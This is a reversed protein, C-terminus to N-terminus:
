PKEEASFWNDKEVTEYDSETSSDASNDRNLFCADLERLLQERKKKDTVDSAPIELVKYGLKEYTSNKLITSGNRLKKEKDIYHQAGQVEVVVKERPFLLDVPPLGNVSAEMELTHRPFNKRLIAHLKRHPYSVITKYNPLPLDRLNEKLWIGSLRMISVRISSSNEKEAMLADYLGKMLPLLLSTEGGRTLFVTLAWLTMEQGRWLEITNIDMTGLINLVENLSVGDGLAALAWLLNSIEQPNFPGPPTVVQPLLATVAQRVLGGQDLQLLGNEVLKALSWLLNSIEQPNFPGPPTVVKPLLATVVQNALSGQDLQLLGNEVLKVLAWLLNTVHQSTFDDRHSQVQPLLATVARNALGGQDQQLLGNEVLKALSWLLNSITQPNFPEAPSVVQPLLAMMAQRALGGQDLQLLGNEVLKALSWLLSSVNQSTVDYRYSQVQPLLVTVVQSALGGQYQQHLGNEMLKALAWLLNSVGQSTFDGQHNQVQSLLATVAQSALRGQDLQLLGNEVLKALSWLLNSVHQSIFDDRHSQVQPLLATVAQSALDAQDPRPLGNEVLKALSWLLNSIEQPNFPGPPTVVQPLLEALARSALFGQDQQLRGNKVLKALSWLLNSIEQPNFPGPPNMVQLLLATAAQSVLGGQDMQLLRNEVLKALSWLLNSIEQPTFPEPPTVVQLLLATAAQSALSGQDMQLLRNEVLKALSWLLNSISQVGFGCHAREQQLTARFEVARALQEILVKQAKKISGSEDGSSNRQRQPSRPPYLLQSVVLSHVCTSLNRENFSYVVESLHHMFPVFRPKEEDTLPKRRTRTANKIKNCYSGHKRGDYNKKYRAASSQMHGSEFEMLLRDIENEVSRGVTRGSPSPQPQNNKHRPHYKTFRAQQVPQVAAVPRATQGNPRHQTQRAPWPQQGTNEPRDATRRVKRYQWQHWGGGAPISSGFYEPYLFELLSQFYMSFRRKFEWESITHLHGDQDYWQYIINGNQDRTQVVERVKRTEREAAEPGGPLIMETLDLLSMRGRYDRAVCPEQDCPLILVSTEESTKSITTNVPLVMKSVPLPLCGPFVTEQSLDTTDPEICFSTSERDSGSHRVSGARDGSLWSYLVVPEDAVARWHSHPLSFANDPNARSFFLPLELMGASLGSVSTSIVLGLCQCLRMRQSKATWVIVMSSVKDIVESQRPFLEIGILRDTLYNRFTICPRGLTLLRATLERQLANEKQSLDFAEELLANQQQFRSFYKLVRQGPHDHRASTVSSLFNMTHFSLSCVHLKGQVLVKQSSARASTDNDTQLNCIIGVM